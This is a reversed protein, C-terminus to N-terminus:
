QFYCLIYSTLVSRQYCFSLALSVACLQFRTLFYAPFLLRAGLFIFWFFFSILIYLIVSLNLFFPLTSNMCVPIYGFMLTKRPNFYVTFAVELAVTVSLDIQILRYGSVHYEDPLHIFDLYIFFFARGFPLALFSSSIVTSLRSPFNKPIILTTINPLLESRSKSPTTLELKANDVIGFLKLELRTPLQSTM